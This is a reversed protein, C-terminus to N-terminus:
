LSGDLTVAECSLRETYKQNWPQNLGFSSSIVCNCHSGPIVTVWKVLPLEYLLPVPECILLFGLVKHRVKKEFNLSLVCKDHLMCDGVSESVFALCTRLKLISLSLEDTSLKLGDAHCSTIDSKNRMVRISLVDALQWFFLLCWEM